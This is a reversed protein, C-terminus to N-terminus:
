QSTEEDGGPPQLRPMRYPVRRTKESPPLDRIWDPLEPSKRFLAGKHKYLLELLQMTDETPLCLQTEQTTIFLQEGDWRYSAYETTVTDNQNVREEKPVPSQISRVECRACRCAVSHSEDGIDNHTFCVFSGDFLQEANVFMKYQRTLERAKSVARAYSRYMQDWTYRSGENMWAM